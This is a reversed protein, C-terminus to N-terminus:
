FVRSMSAGVAKINGFDAEAFVGWNGLTVAIGAPVNVKNELPSFVDDSHPSIRVLANLGSYLSVKAGLARSIVLAPNLLVAAAESRRHLPTSAVAFLSVSNGAFSVLKINGGAGVFAQDEGLIHTEGVSVYLDFRPTLGRIYMAYVINLDVDADYLHNESIMVAQKGKGLTDATALVQASASASISLLALAILTKYM